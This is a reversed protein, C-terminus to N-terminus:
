KQGYLYDAAAKAMKNKNHGVGPIIELKWNYKMGSKKSLEKSFNYFNKGRDLRNTGQKDATESRLMKGRTELDNDLEGLFLVLNKKFSKKVEKQQIGVNKMGFPFSTNYDPLTYTGANSALIRDAKSNPYLLALRHLIQGGASHGFMDYKRQKSKTAKKVLKFIRDFDNFIWDEINENLKFEIVNEDIHVQNTGKKFSVGKSLDLNKVIGGLHYDGYHYEKEPYSPSIILVSYKESAEIWSDRYDDGNRGAGPIVILIESSRTFNAPRHYFITISDARHKGIGNIKFSGSGENITLNQSVTIQTVLFTILILLFRQKM